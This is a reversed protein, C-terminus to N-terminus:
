KYKAWSNTQKYKYILNFFFYFLTLKNLKYILKINGKLIPTKDYHGSQECIDRRM